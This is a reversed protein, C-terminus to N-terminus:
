IRNCIIAFKLMLTGWPTYRKIEPNTVLRVKAGLHKKYNMCDLVVKKEDEHLLDFYGEYLYKYYPYYLERKDRQSFKEKLLTLRSKQAAGLSNNGHQRYLLTSCDDYIINGFFICLIAMWCEHSIPEQIKYRMFLERAAHNFVMTCGQGYCINLASVKCEPPKINKKEGTVNLKEDTVSVNSYYLCPKDQPFDKLKDVARKLKWNKWVDDQDAFAYFPADEAQFVLQYFGRQWGENEGFIVRVRDGSIFELVRRTKVNSGDDRILCRVDVDKQALISQVQEKIYQEGNYSSLLVQVKEM